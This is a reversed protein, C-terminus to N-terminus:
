IYDKIIPHSTPSPREGSHTSDFFIIKVQPHESAISEINGPDNEFFWVHAFSQLAMQQFWQIKFETDAIAVDPKMALQVNTQHYPFRHSKLSHETGLLMRKLARGTLYVIQNQPHDAFHRVFDVAGPYPLDHHLYDSAFFHEKWFERLESVFEKPPPTVFPLRQVSTRIGWDRPGIKINKLLATEVPYNNQRAPDHAFDLVIKESRPSVDFLTSDLDFVLLNRHGEDISKQAVAKIELLCQNKM